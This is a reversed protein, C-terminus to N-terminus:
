ATELGPKVSERAPSLADSYWKIEKVLAALAPQPGWPNNKADENLNGDQDILDSMGSMALQPLTPIVATRSESLIEKLDTAARAGGASGHSIVAAPKRQLEWTIFDIANKLVAPISHNYEPTVFIYADFEDVKSLWKQIAPDVKREPNYRPSIAENFFPMPYDKLDLLEADVDDTQQAQNLVWKAQNLTKRGERTSGVIIALKM